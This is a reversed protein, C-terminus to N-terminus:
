KLYIAKAISYDDEHSISIFIKKDIINEKEDYLITKPKNNKDYTINIKNFPIIKIDLAKYIAEKAAWRGSLFNVIEKSNKKIKLLNIEDNHLFKNIFKEKNVKFIKSIRENKIIDIGINIIEM